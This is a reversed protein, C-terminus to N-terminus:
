VKDHVKKAARATLGTLRFVRRLPLLVCGGVPRRWRIVLLSLLIWGPNISCTAVLTSRSADVYKAIAAGVAKSLATHENVLEPTNPADWGDSTASM